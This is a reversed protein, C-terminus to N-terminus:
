AARLSGSFVMRKGSPILQAEIMRLCENEFWPLTDHQADGACREHSEDWASLEAYKSQRSVLKVVCQDGKDTITYEDTAGRWCCGGPIDLDFRARLTDGGWSVIKMEIPM